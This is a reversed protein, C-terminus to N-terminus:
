NYVMVNLGEEDHVTAGVPCVAECPAQECHMCLVPQFRMEPADADGEYYRDIRLWHMERERIVQDKGVIPVNNEATCAVVCANCGVCSGLDIAMGWAYINVPRPAYMSLSAPPKEGMKAIAEPDRRIEEVSATRAFHRGEMSHHPQTVAIPYKEGTKRVQLG